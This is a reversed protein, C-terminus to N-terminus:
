YKHFPSLTDRSLFQLEYAKVGNNYVVYRNDEKRCFLGIEFFDGINVININNHKCYQELYYERNDNYLIAIFSVDQPRLKIFVEM